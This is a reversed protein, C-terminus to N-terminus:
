ISLTTIRYSSKGGGHANFFLLNSSLSTLPSYIRLGIMHGDRTAISQETIFIDGDPSPVDAPLPPAVYGLARLEKIPLSWIFSSLEEKRTQLSAVSEWEVSPSASEDLDQSTIALSDCM